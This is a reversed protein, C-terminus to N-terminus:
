TPYTLFNCFELGDGMAFRAVALAQLGFCQRDLNRAVVNSFNGFHGNGIQHFPEATKLFLQIFLAALNRCADQTFNVFTQAKKFVDTKLVQRKRSFGAGKRTAFALADTQRRLDARAQGPYQIHQVLWGDAKVLAVVVAQQDRKFAKAIQAVGHDHDFVIFFGDAGGIIHDIHSRARAHMAAFHHCTTRRLLDDGVFFAEGPLVKRAFLFDSDRLRAAFAVYALLDAHDPGALIVQVVNVRFKGQARKGTHGPNRATAFGRQHDIRKILRQGFTQM